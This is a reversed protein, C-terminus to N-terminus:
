FRLVDAQVRRVVDKGVQGIMTEFSRRSLARRTRAAFAVVRPDPHRKMAAFPIVKAPDVAGGLVLATGQFTAWFKLLRQCGRILARGAVFSQDNALDSLIAAVVLGMGIVQKADQRPHMPRNQQREVLAMGKIMYLLVPHIVRLQFNGAVQLRVSSARIADAAGSKYLLVDIPVGLGDQSVIKGRSFVQSRHRLPHEWKADLARALKRGQKMNGILDVDKFFFPMHASIEESDRAYRNAYISVACGGALILDLSEDNLKQFISKCDTLRNLRM